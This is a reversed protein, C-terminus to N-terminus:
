PRKRGLAEAASKRVEPDPDKLLGMLATVAEAGGIEKLAEVAHRRTETDSDSVLKKLAPVAAEDGINGLANAANRRVDRDPDSLAEILARPATKLEDFSGLADAAHERVHSSSDKLAAVFIPVLSLLDHQHLGELANARVEADRDKTMEKLPEITAAEELNGLAEAVHRRVQVDDDRIMSALAPIVAADGFEGLAQVAARRVEASADKLAGSVGGIASPDDIEQLAEIIKVRVKTARETKLADLLHPVARNDDIEGLAWAAAERVRSDTDEKLAKALAAIAAPDQLGGLSNVAALRVEYESDELAQALAVITSTAQPLPSRNMPKISAVEVPAAPRSGETSTSASASAQTVPAQQTPPSEAVVPTEQNTLASPAAPATTMATLPVMAMMFLAAVGAMRARSMRTRPVGPELIALLRGEFDSSRAMALAIKPVPQGVSKVIDLLHDAYDSAKAGARLVADDAAREGEYRLGNAAHWALPNPWYLARALHSLINMALDGRSIHALEHLLVADRRQASWEGASQPLVITPHVLGCTYPVPTENSMRVEVPQRVSSAAICRDIDAHWMPDTVEVARRGIRHVTVLGFIMRALLVLAGVGWTIAIVMAWAIRFARRRPEESSTPNSEELASSDALRESRSPSPTADRQKSTTPATVRGATAAPMVRFELPSLKAILPAVLASVIAFAWFMHRLSAPARRKLLQTVIAVFAFLVASQIMADIM